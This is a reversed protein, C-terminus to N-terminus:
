DGPWTGTLKRFAEAGGRNIVARVVAFIAGQIASALVIERWPYERQLADPTEEEDSMRKWLQRFVMGAIAGAVIGGLLGVPKYAVKAATNSM